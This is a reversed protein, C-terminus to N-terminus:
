QVRPVSSPSVRFTWLHNALFNWVMGIGIASIKALYIGYAADPFFQSFTSAFSMVILNNILLASLSVGVFQSFQKGARCRPRHAFTWNRHLLYNNLIGASYSLTNAPLTPMGLQTHLLTFFFLDILTGMMGVLMFRAAVPLNM